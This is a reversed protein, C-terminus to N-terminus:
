SDQSVVVRLVSIGGPNGDEITEFGDFPPRWGYGTSQGRSGQRGVPDSLYAMATVGRPSSLSGLTPAHNFAKKYSKQLLLDVVQSW